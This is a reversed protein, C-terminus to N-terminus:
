PYFRGVTEVAFADADSFAAAARASSAADPFLGFVAAGSGSMLADTAGLALLREKRERIGSYLPFVVSEFDNLLPYRGGEALRALENRSPANASVLNERRFQDLAGYANATSVRESGMVVTYFRHAPDRITEIRDGIGTCVATGGSLCFAVDAGLSAAIGSLEPYSLPFGSLRNLARLMAAADASGGGLGAETPVNKELSVSVPFSKRTKSFFSEAARVVLNTHDKPAYYKGFISLNIGPLDDNKVEVTLKDCLSVTEMLTVLDHYGDRRRRGVSLILNVKAPAIETVMDRTMDSLNETKM